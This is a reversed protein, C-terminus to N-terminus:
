EDSAGDEGDEDAEIEAPKSQFLRWHPREELSVDFAALCRSANHVKCVQLGEREFHQKNRCRVWTHPACAWKDQSVAECQDIM